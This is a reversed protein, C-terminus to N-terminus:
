VIFLRIEWSSRRLIHREMFIERNVIKFDTSNRNKICLLVAVSATFIHLCMCVFGPQDFRSTSKDLDPIPLSNTIWGATSLMTKKKWGKKLEASKVHVLSWACANLQQDARQTKRACYRKPKNSRRKQIEQATAEKGHIVLHAFFDMWPRDLGLAPEVSFCNQHLQPTSRLCHCISPFLFVSNCMLRYNGPFGSLCRHGDNRNDPKDALRCGYKLSSQTRGVIAEAIFRRLVDFTDWLLYSFWWFGVHFTLLPIAIGCFWFLLGDMYWFPIKIDAFADM